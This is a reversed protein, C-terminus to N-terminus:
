FNSKKGNDLSRYFKKFYAWSNCTRLDKKAGKQIVWFFLRPIDANQEPNEM